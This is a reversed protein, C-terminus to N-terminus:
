EGVQPFHRLVPIIRAAGRIMDYRLFNAQDATFYMGYVLKGNQHSTKGKWFHLAREM